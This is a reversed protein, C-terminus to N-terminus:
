GAPAEHSEAALLTEICIRSWTEFQDRTNRLQELRAFGAEALGEERPFVEPRDLDYVHVVGLHVRGVPTEDDNILGVCSLRGSTGIRVEEDLERRLAIEYAELTARGDADEEDVHGGVGISKLKHLRVEGQSKGRTYCFVLGEARFIVYPIIQKFSPDDEMEARPQFQAVGPVLLAQMYREADACFGQFAGLRQVAETPVVLVRGSRAGSM